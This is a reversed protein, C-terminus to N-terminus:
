PAPIVSTTTKANSAVGSTTVYTTGAEVADPCNDGDSDLDLRNPIGDSDSNIDECTVERFYIETSWNAQGTMSIAYIRYSLFPKYNGPMDFKISNTTALIPSTNAVAQSSVIDNWTIGEDNSGQIKYTGGAIFPTQNTINALEILNLIKPTIFNFQFVTKNSISTETPYIQQILSGDLLANLGIAPANQYYWNIASSVTINNKSMTSGTCNQEEYDLVGDNDDDLDAVNKIGDSDSDLCANITNSLAYIIYTSSYNVSGVTSGEYITLLGNQNADDGTPFTATSTATSSSGAEIADACGDGDSDLDLSNIIGDGDVDWNCVNEKFYIETAWGGGSTALIGFVRYYKYATTNSPFNAINSNHNSLGGSTATAVNNYSLTGTVDFWNANDTSGQIKYTSGTAFLQQGQYHGIELYRLAKPTPFEFNFWPSNNLTGSPGSTVYVNADVGDILNAITNGNFTYNITAPKTIIVGAKSTILEACALETADLIGDNDDDLDFVDSVGDSDSDLCAFINTNIANLYNYTSSYIGSETITELRDAFGNNGYPGAIVSTTLRDDVAVNSGSFLTVGAEVADPCNDGDADLDQHNLLADGDQNETCVSLPNASPVTSPAFNFKAEYVGGYYSSGAVGIIRFYKFKSNVALTNAITFTGATNTSFTTASLDTWYFDDGSGQLKFTNTNGNSIAWNVLEFSMGTISIYNKATFKFLEKGVWNINPNFASYTAANADIANGIVNTSYQDIESSVSLPIALQSMTYFCSPSEIADLVGDNDDDIDVIDAAGDNDTDTCAKITTNYAYESTYIGSYLNSEASTKELGDKFGNAGFDSGTFIFNAAISTTTGSELADSCGDGDSDLDLHNPINDNDIATQTCNLKPYQSASYSGNLVFQIDTVGGYWSSGAM